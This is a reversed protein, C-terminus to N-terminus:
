RWPMYFPLLGWKRNVQAAWFRRQTLDRILKAVSASKLWTSSYSLSEWHLSTSEVASKSESSSTLPLGTIVLDPLCTLALIRNSTQFRKKLVTLWSMLTFRLVTIWVAHINSWINWCDPIDRFKLVPGVPWAVSKLWHSPASTNILLCILVDSWHDFIKFVISTNLPCM